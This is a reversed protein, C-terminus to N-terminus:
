YTLWGAEKYWALTEALGAEIATPATFGLEATARAPDCTWFPFRAERVKERSIIGPKGTLRAAAEACAGVALAVPFPIALVRPVRRMIRAAAGSLDRWSLPKPHALFYDRGPARPSRVAALVGEVLDKVYIASFFREGGAIEVVIGRSVSKLLQFVDTDRPGYVVAPRVIVADPTIERVAREAALKSKGYTVPPHPIANEGVPTGDPSPGIAALSSVHVFRVPRGALAQALNRTAQANGAYYDATRLAKTVGALHIVTDAGCVAEAIGEGTVLDGHVPEVGSPLTARRRVLARVPQGMAALRELLHAGIFGTGGTVLIM